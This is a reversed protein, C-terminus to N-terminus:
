VSVGVRWGPVGGLTSFTAAVTTEDEVGFFVGAGFVFAELGYGGVDEGEGGLVGDADGVEDTLISRGIM